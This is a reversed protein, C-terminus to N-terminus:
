NNELLGLHLFYLYFSLILLRTVLVVYSKEQVINRSNSESFSAWILPAGGSWRLFSIPGTKLLNYETGVPVPHVFDCFGNLGLLREQLQISDPILSCVKFNDPWESLASLPIYVRLILVSVPKDAVPPPFLALIYPFLLSHNLCTMACCIIKCALYHLFFGAAFSIRM